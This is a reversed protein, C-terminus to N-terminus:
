SGSPCPPRRASRSPLIGRGPGAPARPGAGTKTIRGHPTYVGLYRTVEGAPIPHDSKLPSGGHAKAAKKGGRRPRQEQTRRRVAGGRGARLGPLREGVLREPHHLAHGRGHDRRVSPEDYERDRLRAVVLLLLDGVEPGGGGVAARLRPPERRALTRLASRAKRGVTPPERERGLAVVVLHALDVDQVHRAAAFGVADRGRGQGRAAGHPAGVARPD